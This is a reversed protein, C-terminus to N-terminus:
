SVVKNRGGRKALYLNEDATRLLSAPTVSMEGAMCAVGISITLKVPTSEFQFAHDAVAQRIREAVLLAEDHGTEVLVLVFEEGGYRAFLDEKRVTGRIVDTMERLVFDGCLHGFTDNIAKFRDLDIM